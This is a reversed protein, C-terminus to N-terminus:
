SHIVNCADNSRRQSLSCVARRQMRPRHERRREVHRSIRARRGVGIAARVVRRPRRQLPRDRQEFALARLHPDEAGPQRCHGRDKRRHELRAIRHHNRFRHVKARPLQQLLHIDRGPHPHTCHCGVREGPRLCQGARAQHPHLRGHVRPELDRIYPRHRRRGPRRARQQRDVVGRRRRQALLRQPQARIEGDARIGLRHAAM